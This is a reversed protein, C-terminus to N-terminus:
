VTRLRLLLLGPIPLCRRDHIGQLKNIPNFLEPITHVYWFKPQTWEKREIGRRYLQPVALSVKDDVDQDLVGMVIVPLSTFALNFFIIYTYDFIYQSDFNTYIQYWFLAFV